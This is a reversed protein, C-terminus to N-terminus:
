NTSRGPWQPTSGTRWDGGVFIYLYKLERFQDMKEDNSMQSEREEWGDEDTSKIASQETV